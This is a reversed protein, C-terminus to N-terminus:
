TNRSAFYECFESVPCRECGPNRAKCIYRGHLVLWHHAYQLWREPIVHMLEQEIKNPAKAHSLGLRSSVRQVHTDVPMTAKGFVTNLVVNATKRGVGPLKILEDLSDPVLGQYDRLLQESLAIINKAKTPYLGITKIYAKLGEVGLELMQEPTDCIAFLTPTVKNVGKDTMRASLVVAVLLTFNNSYYLETVPHPNRESFTRFICDIKYM